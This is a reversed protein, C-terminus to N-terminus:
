NNNYRYFVKPAFRLDLYELDLDHNELDAVFKSDALVSNFTELALPLDQDLDLRIEWGFSSDLDSRAKFYWDRLEGPEVSYVRQSALPSDSLIASLQEKLEILKGLDAQPLPYQGLPNQNNKSRFEFYLPSSFKPAPSFVFGSEDTFYCSNDSLCWLFKGQREKVSLSLSRLDEQSLKISSLRPFSSELRRVIKDHPYLLVNRKPYFWFIKGNLEQNVLQRIELDSVTKNGSIKVASILLRDNWAVVLSGIFLAAILM